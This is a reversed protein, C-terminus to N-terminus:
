PGRHLAFSGLLQERDHKEADATTFFKSLTEFPVKASLLWVDGDAFIVHFGGPNRGSIGRGDRAGVTRPMTRIDFDGPAPWPIGSSRTEVAVITEPPVDKFAMPRGQGDGFATGPGTIALFNTEPFSQPPGKPGTAGIAYYPSLEVLKKNAPDDWPRSRDWTGHWAELYPHIEVRWSYLPRDTVKSPDSGTSPEDSPQRVVPDPLHGHARGYGLLSVAINAPNKYPTNFINSNSLTQVMWVALGSVVLVAAIAILLYVPRLSAHRWPSVLPKQVPRRQDDTM